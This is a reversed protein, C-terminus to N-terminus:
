NESINGTNQGSPPSRCENQYHGKERCNWCTIYAKSRMQRNGRNYPFNRNISYSEKRGVGRDPNISAVANIHSSNSCHTALHGLQYCVHCHKPPLAYEVEMPETHRVNSDTVRGIRLNNKKRLNQETMASGVAAQLTAPNERMVKMKLNDHALGDIFFWVLQREIAAVGGNQGTFAEEALSLLREAYLQVNEELKQKIKRLLVFAHQPDSIEAFRLTLETKLQGWNNGVNDHLYRKIFDCVADRSSQYAVMKVRDDTLGTLSAYKEISRVWDKFIKSDGEFPHVIHSFGQAGVVTSLGSLQAAIHQFLTAVDGDVM